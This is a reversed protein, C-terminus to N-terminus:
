RSRAMQSAGISGWDDAQENVSTELLARKGSGDANMIWVDYNGQAVRHSYMIRRGDPSWIPRVDIEPADTLRVLGSGDANMVAIDYADDVGFRTTAFAILTGDASWTPNGDLGPDNTLRITGTGDANMVYIEQNGDRESMFAIRSGDPSWEPDADLAANFTLRQWTGSGSVDIVYIEGSNPGEATNWSYFALRPGDPSWRPWSDRTEPSRTLNQVNSGYASMLYIEENGDRNSTFAIRTGDPSIAAFYNQGVTTLARVQSGNETMSHLTGGIYVILREPGVTPCQLEFAVDSTDTPTVVAVRDALGSLQCWGPVGNLRVTHSGVTTLAFVVLGNPSINQRTDGVSVQMSAPVDDGSTLTRVAVWGVPEAVLPTDSGGCGAFVSVGIAAILEPMTLAVSKAWM